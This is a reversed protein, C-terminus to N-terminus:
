LSELAELATIFQSSPTDCPFRVEYWLASMLKVYTEMRQLAEPEIAMTKLAFAKQRDKLDLGLTFCALDTLKCGAAAYEWDLLLPNGDNFLINGVHWDHYCLTLQESPQYTELATEVRTVQEPTLRDMVSSMLHRIQTKANLPKEKLSDDLIVSHVAEFLQLLAKLQSDSVSEPHHGAHWQTLLWDAQLDFVKPAFPHSQIATLIKKERLRDIGLRAAEPNNIRLAFHGLPGRLEYIANTLPNKVRKVSLNRGITPSLAQLTQHLFM